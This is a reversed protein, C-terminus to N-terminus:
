RPGYSLIGGGAVSYIGFEAGTRVLVNDVFPKMGERIVGSHGLRNRLKLADVTYQIINRTGGRGLVHKGWNTARSQSWLTRSNRQRERLVAPSQFRADWAQNWDSVISLGGNLSLSFGPTLPNYVTSRASL